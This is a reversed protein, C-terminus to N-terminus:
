EGMIPLEDVCTGQSIECCEADRGKLPIGSHALRQYWVLSDSTGMVGRFSNRKFGGVVEIPVFVMTREEGWRPQKVADQVIPWEKRLCKKDQSEM